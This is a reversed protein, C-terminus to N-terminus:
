VINKAMYPGHKHYGRKAYYEKVGLASIVIVRKYGQSEAIEEARALLKSGIGRHQWKPEGSKQGVPVMEGYVHLERVLASDILLENAAVEPLRLRLLGALFEGDGSEYSLFVESGGFTEYWTERLSMSSSMVKDSAARRGVERCRICRCRLGRRALEREAMERLNGPYNGSATLRGPIERRVRQIRVYPPTIAFMEALLNVLEDLEYPKYLGRSWIEYLPTDPLVMTPYIKVTDPRFRIDSFMTKYMELDKDPNSGPLGPMFHYGVKLARDRLNRTAKVVDEVTHGRAIKKYIEDDLAQVGIEVRTVGLRVLEDVMPPTVWDPRTEIMMGVLRPKAWEARLLAEDVSRSDPGHLGDLAAKIFERQAGPSAYTYTGGIFILEVKDVDHGMEELRKLYAKVQTRVDFNVSKAFAVVPEAGTYSQPIGTKGGGPCYICRGHPCNFLPVAVTIVTIGSGVRVPKRRFQQILAPPAQLRRLVRILETHTPIERLKLSEALVIKATEAGKKLIDPNSLLQRAIKEAESDRLQNESSAM